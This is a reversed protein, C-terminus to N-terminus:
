ALAPITVAKSVARETEAASSFSKPFPVKPSQPLALSPQEPCLDPGRCRGAAVCGISLALLIVEQDEEMEPLGCFLRLGPAFHLGLLSNRCRSIVWFCLQGIVLQQM